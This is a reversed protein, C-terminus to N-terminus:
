PQAPAPAAPAIKPTADARTESGPLQHVNLKESYMQFDHYLMIDGGKLNNTAGYAQTVLSINDLPRGLRENLLMGTPTEGGHDAKIGNLFDKTASVLADGKVNPDQLKAMFENARAKDAPNSLAPDSAFKEAWGELHSKVNDADKLDINYRSLIHSDEARMVAIQGVQDATWQKVQRGDPATVVPGEPSISGGAM